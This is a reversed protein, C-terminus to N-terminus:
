RIAGLTFTAFARAGIEGVEKLKFSVIGCTTQRLVNLSLSVLEFRYSPRTFGTDLVSSPSLSLIPLADDARDWSFPIAISTSFM